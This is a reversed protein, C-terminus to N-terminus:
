QGRFRLRLRRVGFAVGAEELLCVRATRGCAQEAFRAGAGAGAGVREVEGALDVEGAGVLAGREAQHHDGRRDGAAIVEAVDDDAGGEPDVGLGGLDGGDGVRKGQDEAADGEAEAPDEDVEIAGVEGEVRGVAVREGDVGREATVFARLGVEGRVELDGVAGAQGVPRLEAEGEAAAQLRRPWGAIWETRCVPGPSALM